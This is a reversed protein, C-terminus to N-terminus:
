RKMDIEISSKLNFWYLFKWSIRCICKWEIFYKTFLMMKLTDWLSLRSQFIPFALFIWIKEDTLRSCLVWGSTMEWALVVLTHFDWSKKQFFNPIINCLKRWHGKLIRYFNLTIMNQFISFCIMSFQCFLFHKFHNHQFFFNLHQTFSFNIKCM